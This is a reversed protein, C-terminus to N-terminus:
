HAPKRVLQRGIACAIGGLGRVLSHLGPRIFM